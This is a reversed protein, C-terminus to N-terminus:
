RVEELQDIPKMLFDIFLSLVSRKRVHINVTVSMGSQLETRKGRVSLYERELGIRAPFMFATRPENLVADSALIELTGHIQGFERYPFTDVRIECPMGASIFGVKQNPIEVKAILREDSPVLQLLTESARVVSGPQPFKIQQITGAYPATISHHSLNVKATALEAETDGIRRRTEISLKGLRADLEAIKKDNDSRRSMAEKLYATEVNLEEERARSIELRLAEMRDALVEVQTENRILESQRLLFEVKATSGKETLSEFASTIERSNAALREAADRQGTIAELEKEASQAALNAQKVKEKRDQEAINFLQLQDPTLDAGDANHLLQAQLLRNDGILSARDKALSIIEEPLAGAQVEKLVSDTEEILKQYYGYETKLDELRNLLTQMTASAAEQDLEILIQGAEVSDGEKVHITTLVGEVPAQIDQVSGIPQLKGPASVVEDIQAFAAWLIMAVTTLMLTWLIARSLTPPQKLFMGHAGRESSGASAKEMPERIRRLLKM